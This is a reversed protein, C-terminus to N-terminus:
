SHVTTHVRFFIQHLVAAFWLTQLEECFLDYVEGAAVFINDPPDAPPTWGGKQSLSCVVRTQLLAAGFKKETYARPAPSISGLRGLQLQHHTPGRARVNEVRRMPTSQQWNGLGFAGAVTASASLTCRPPPYRLCSSNFDRRFLLSWCFSAMPRVAVTDIETHPWAPLCALVGDIGVPLGVAGCAVVLRGRSGIWPQCQWGGCQVASCQTDHM